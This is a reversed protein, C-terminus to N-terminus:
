TSDLMKGNDTHDSPGYMRDPPLLFLISEGDRSSVEMKWGDNLRTADSDDGSRERSGRLDTALPPLSSRM